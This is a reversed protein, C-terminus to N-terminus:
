GPVCSRRSCPRRGTGGCGRCTRSACRAADRSSRRRRARGRTRCRAGSWWWCAAAPARRQQVIRDEDLGRPLEGLADICSPPAVGASRAEGEREPERGAARGVRRFARDQAVVSSSISAAYRASSAAARAAARRRRTAARRRLGARRARRRCPADRVHDQVEVFHDRLASRHHVIATSVRASVERRSNSPRSRSRGRRRPARMRQEAVHAAAGGVLRERVERRLGLADDEQELGAARRVEIQEVVLRLDFSRKSWSM